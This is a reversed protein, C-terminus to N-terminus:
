LSGRVFNCHLLQMCELFFDPFSYFRKCHSLELLMVRKVFPVPAVDSVQTMDALIEWVFVHLIVKRKITAGVVGPGYLKLLKQM